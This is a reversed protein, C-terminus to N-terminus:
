KLVRRQIFKVIEVIVVMAIGAAAVIAWQFADLHTVHFLDNFGPVVITM